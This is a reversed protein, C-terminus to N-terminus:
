RKLLPTMAGIVREMEVACRAYMQKAAKDKTSLSHLELDAECKKLVALLSARTEPKPVKQKDDFLDVFVQGFADVEGLFVNEASVGLKKLETNLWDRNHGIRTLSNDLIKGDMIVVQPEAEPAVKIGLSKPTLPQNEKKLLVNLDGSAELVAYEVENVNFVDKKRLVEMLEDPSFREKRLNDELVKGDQIVVTGKGELWNRLTRNRLSLHEFIFPVTFWVLLALVGYFYHSEMDTSIFGALEGLTIGTIYEFFTLQSIQKKGLIRTLIFLMVVAGLSRFVILLWEPV